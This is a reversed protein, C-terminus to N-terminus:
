REDHSDRVGRQAFIHGCLRRDPLALAMHHTRQDLAVRVHAVAGAARVREQARDHLVGGIAHNSQEVSAGGSRTLGCVHLCDHRELERPEGTVGGLAKAVRLSGRQGGVAPLVARLPRDRAQLDLKCISAAGLQALQAVLGHPALVPLHGHKVIGLGEDSAHVDLTAARRDDLRVGLRVLDERVAREGVQPKRLLM